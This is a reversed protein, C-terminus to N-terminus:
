YGGGQQPPQQQQPQQPQQQPAQHQQLPVQSGDDHPQPTGHMSPPGQQMQQDPYGGMYSQGGQMPPVVMPYGTQNQQPMGYPPQQQQQYGRGYMHQPYMNPGPQQQFQGHGSPGPYQQMMYNPVGGGGGGGGYGQGGGMGYGPGGRGGERKDSAFDVRIIRGDFKTNNMQEIARHASEDDHYRVFGFGRSRGTDRDKVVVAEKVEGFDKFREYLTGEETHWALGGIFLKAMSSSSPKITEIHTEALSPIPVIPGGSRYASRTKPTIHSQHSQAHHYGGLSSTALWLDITVIISTALISAVFVPLAPSWNQSWTSTRSAIL